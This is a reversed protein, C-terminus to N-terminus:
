ILFGVFYGKFFFILPYTLNLWALGNKIQCIPILSFLCQLMLVAPWTPIGITWIDIELQGNGSKYTGFMGNKWPISCLSYIAYTRLYGTFYLIQTVNYFDHCLLLNRRYMFFIWDLFGMLTLLPPLLYLTATAFLPWNGGKRNVKGM